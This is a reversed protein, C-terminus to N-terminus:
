SPLAVQSRRSPRRRRDSRQRRSTGPRSTPPDVTREAVAILLSSAAQRLLRLDLEDVRDGRRLAEAAHLLRPVVEALDYYPSAQVAPSQEDPASARVETM